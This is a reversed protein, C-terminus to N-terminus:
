DQQDFFRFLSPGGFERRERLIFFRRDGRVDSDADDEASSGAPARRQIQRTERQRPREAKKRREANRREEALRKAQQTIADGRDQAQDPNVLAVPQQAGLPPPGADAAPTVPPAQQQAPAPSQPQAAPASESPKPAPDPKPTSAQLDAPAPTVPVPKTTITPPAAETAAARREVRSPERPGNDSLIGSVLVGGGFGFALLVVVTGVGVFFSPANFTM